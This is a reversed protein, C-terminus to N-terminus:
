GARADQLDTNIKMQVSTAVSVEWLGRPEPCSTGPVLSNNSEVVGVFLQHGFGPHKNVVSLTPRRSARYPLVIFPWPREGPM